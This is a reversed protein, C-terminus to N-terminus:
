VISVNMYQALRGIVMCAHKEEPGKDAQGIDKGSVVWYLESWDLGGREALRHLTQGGHNHQAQKEHPAVFGWPVSAPLEPFKKVSSPHLPFQREEAM